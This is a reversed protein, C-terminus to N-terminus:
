RTSSSRARETHRDAPKGVADLEFGTRFILTGGGGGRGSDTEDGPPSRASIPKRNSLLYNRATCTFIDMAALALFCIVSMTANVSRM